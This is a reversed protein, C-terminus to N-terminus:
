PNTCGCSEGHVFKPTLSVRRALISPNALRTLVLDAAQEGMARTPQAIATLRPHFLDAWEFDDFAVVALDDPARLHSDRAERLVGITMRNNGVVVATPPVPLALLTHLARRAGDDSSNGSVIYQTDVRKHNRRM